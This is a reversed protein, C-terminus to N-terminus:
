VPGLGLDMRQGVIAGMGDGGGHKQAQYSRLINDHEELLVRMFKTRVQAWKQKPVGLTELAKEFREVNVSTLGAVFNVQLITWGAQQAVQHAARILSAYQKTAREDCRQAYGHERDSTRKFELTFVTKTERNLAVGDFRRAGLERIWCIKCSEGEEFVDGAKRMCHCCRGEGAPKGGGRQCEAACVECTNLMGCNDERRDGDVDQRGDRRPTGAQRLEGDQDRKGVCRSSPPGEERQQWAVEALESWPCVERLEEREWLGKMSEEHEETLVEVEKVLRQVERQLFRNCRNHAATVVEKQGECYASQIHGVSESERKGMQCGEARKRSCLTCGKGQGRGIKNLWQGCPFTGTLVQILRRRRKWPISRCKLWKHICERSEGKRTMFDATWSDTAPSRQGKKEGEQGNRRQETCKEMWVDLPDFWLGKVEERVAEAPARGCLDPGMWNDESWKRGGATMHTRYMAWAGQKRLAIRVSAGWANKRKVGDATQWRFILRETRDTWEKTDADQLRGIDACDDAEENLPEGRHAKVKVLFTAAGAQIRARLKEIIKELIDANAVGVLTAKAGEGIWKGVETIESKCDLLAVVDEEDPAERLLMLLAALEARFSSTGEEERGIRAWGRRRGDSPTYIKDKVKIYDGYTVGMLELRAAHLESPCHGHNIVRALDNYFIERGRLLKEATVEEWMEGPQRMDLTCFGAGMKGKSDSGDAAAVMGQFGIIGLQGPETGLWYHAERENLRLQCEDKEVECQWSSEIMQLRDAGIREKTLKQHVWCEIGHANLTAQVDGRKWWGFARQGRSRPAERGTEEDQQEAGGAARGLKLICQGPPELGTEAEQQRARGRARRVVIYDRRDGNTEKWEAKEQEDLTDWLVVEPGEGRGWFCVKGRRAADFFPAATVMTGGQLTTAEFVAQLSRLVRWTMCRVGQRELREQVQSEEYLREVLDRGQADGGQGTGTKAKLSNWQASTITWPHKPDLSAVRGEVNLIQMGLGEETWKVPESMVRVYGKGSCHRPVAQNFFWGEGIELEVDVDELVRPEKAMLPESESEWRMVLQRVREGEKPKGKENPSCWDALMIRLEEQLTADGQDEGDATTRPGNEIGRIFSEIQPAIWRGTRRGEREDREEILEDSEAELAYGMEKTTLWVTMESEELAIMAELVKRLRGADLLVDGGSREDERGAYRPDATMCVVGKRAAKKPEVKRKKAAKQVGKKATKKTEVKRKKAAKQMCLECRAQRRGKEVAFQDVHRLERCGTCQVLQGERTAVYWWGKDGFEVGDGAKSFM